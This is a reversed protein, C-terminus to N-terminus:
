IGNVVTFIYIATGTVDITKLLSPSLQAELTQNYREVM